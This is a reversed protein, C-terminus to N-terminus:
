ENSDNSSQQICNELDNELKEHKSEVVNKLSTLDLIFIKPIGYYDMVPVADEQKVHNWSFEYFKRGKLLREYAIQFQSQCNMAEM